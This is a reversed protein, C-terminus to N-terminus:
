TLKKVNEGTRVVNKPAKRSKLYADLWAVFKEAADPCRRVDNAADAKESYLKAAAERGKGASPAHVSREGVRVNAM